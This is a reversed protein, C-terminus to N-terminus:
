EHLDQSPITVLTDQHVLLVIIDLLSQRIGLFDILADLLYHLSFQLSLSITKKLLMVPYVVLHIFGLISLEMIEFLLPLLIQFLELGLGM